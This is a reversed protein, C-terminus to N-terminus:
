EKLEQLPDDRLAAMDTRMTHQQAHQNLALSTEQMARDAGCANEAPM